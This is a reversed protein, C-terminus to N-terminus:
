ENNSSNSAKEHTYPLPTGRAARVKSQWSMLEEEARKFGHTEQAEAWYETISNLSVSGISRLLVVSADAFVQRDTPPRVFIPGLWLIWGVIGSLENLVILTSEQQFHGGLTPLRFINMSQPKTSPNLHASLESLLQYTEQDMPFAGESEALKERVKVPSFRRRRETGTASEWEQFSLTHRVFLLLLNGTEGLQRVLGLAEDYFGSKMLTLVARANSLARGVVHEHTHSQSACGWWCSALRDLLSLATGLNELTEPAKVGASSIWGGFSEACREEQEELINLFENGGPIELAMFEGTLTPQKEGAEWSDVAEPKVNLKAAIEDVGLGRRRRAWTLVAPTVLAETM